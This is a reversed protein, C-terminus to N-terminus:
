CRGKGSTTIGRPGPPAVVEKEGKAGDRSDRGPLGNHGNRAPISPSGQACMSPNQAFFINKTLGFVLM